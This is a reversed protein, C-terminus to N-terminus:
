ITTRSVSSVSSFTHKWIIATNRVADQMVARDIQQLLAQGAEGDFVESFPARVEPDDYPYGRPPAIINSLAFSARCVNVIEQWVDAARIKPVRNRGFDIGLEADVQKAKWLIVGPTLSTAALSEAKFYDGVKGAWHRELRNHLGHRYTALKRADCHCPMCADAVFHGLMFFHLAAHEAGSRAEPDVARKIDPKAATLRDVREDGLTLLDPITTALAMARNALHKEPSPDARYAKKWWGKTLTDDDEILGKMRRHSGLRDLLEDRELRFRTGPVPEMKLVHNEKKSGGRSADIEDPLWSYVAAKKVFPKLLSVLARNKQVGRSDKEDDLLGIARLAIWAHTQQDM